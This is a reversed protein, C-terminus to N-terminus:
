RKSKLLRSLQRFIAAPTSQTKLKAARARSQQTMMPARGEELDQIGDAREGFGQRASAEGQKTMSHRSDRRKKDDNNARSTHHSMSMIIHTHHKTTVHEEGLHRRVDQVDRGGRAAASPM